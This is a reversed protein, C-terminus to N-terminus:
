AKSKRLPFSSIFKKRYHMECYLNSQIEEYDVGDFWPHSMVEDISPRTEPYKWLMKLLLDKSSESLSNWKNPRNKNAEMDVDDWKSEGSDETSLSNMSLVTKDPFDGILLIYLWVGLSYIDAKYADFECDKQLDMVEPAMYFLTGRRLNWKQKNKGLEFAVGLDALKINYFKDLLINELKLDLHVLYNSHIFRVADTLQLFMFKVLDEEIAGTIRIYKSIPGNEALEILNYMVPEERVGNKLVGDPNTMFSNLINPHEDLKSM